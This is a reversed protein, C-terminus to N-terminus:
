TRRSNKLIERLRRAVDAEDSIAPPISDGHIGNLKGLLTKEPQPTMGGGGFLYAFRGTSRGPNSDGNDSSRPQIKMKKADRSRDRNTQPRDGPKGNYKKERENKM